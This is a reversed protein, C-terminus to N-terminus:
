KLMYGETVYDLIKKIIDHVLFFNNIKDQITYIQVRITINEYKEKTCVRM